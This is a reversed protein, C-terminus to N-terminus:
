EKIKKPIYVLLGKLKPDSCGEKFGFKKYFTILQDENLDGYANVTNILCINYEDLIEILRNMLQTAIGKNRMESPVFLRNFFWADEIKKDLLDIYYTTHSIEACACTRKGIIYLSINDKGINEKM